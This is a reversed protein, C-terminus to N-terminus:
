LIFECIFSHSVEYKALGNLIFNLTVKFIPTVSTIYSVPFGFLKGTLEGLDEPIRLYIGEEFPSNLFATDVDLHHFHLKLRVALTCMIHISAHKVVTALKTSISKPPNTLIQKYRSL